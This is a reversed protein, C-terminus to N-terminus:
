EFILTEYFNYHKWCGSVEGCQKEKAADSSTGVQLGVDDGAWHEAMDVHAFSGDPHLGIGGSFDADGVGLLPLGIRQVPAIGDLGAVGQIVGRGECEVCDLGALIVVVADLEVALEGLVLVGKLRRGVINAAGRGGIQADGDAACVIDGFIAELRGIM